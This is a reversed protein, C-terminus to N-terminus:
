QKPRDWFVFFVAIIVLPIGVAIAGVVPQPINMAVYIQDLPM